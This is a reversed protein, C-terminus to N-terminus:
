EINSAIQQLGRWAAQAGAVDVQVGCQALARSYRMTLAPDGILIIKQHKDLRRSRLEEGIVVGSLYSTRQAEPLREFLSLTRVSFASQLLSPSRLAHAVGADFADNHLPAADGAAREAEPTPLTRSLISHHRLLAFFEGTMLTEFSRVRSMQVDVWKCHTGPLVVTGSDIDLLRLAGFIQTEEGRMVDPAGDHECTLGPVIAVRGRSTSTEPLDIWALKAAVDALGAPCECYPAEMWGQKSGAMGSILCLTDADTMWDGFLEDFVSAFGGAPVTLIGRAFAREELVSGDDAVRAGRLSSTGWDIAVFKRVPHNEVATARRDITTAHCSRAVSASWFTSTWVKIPRCCM